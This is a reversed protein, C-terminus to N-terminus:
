SSYQKIIEEPFPHRFILEEDTFPHPLSLEVCHLAHRSLANGKAGYLDDGALPHGLSSMHVRIQHTRGTKLELEVLSYGSYEKIVQYATIANKGSGSVEREIISGPKRAIPKQIKDVKKTLHGEVIAQYKRKIIRQQQLGSLLSHSYQHKAILMLGSTDRDLRTVVHFTFPLQEKDYHGIVRNAITGEPHQASPSTAVGAPKNLILLHDDEYLIDLKTDDAVMRDGRAEPPFQITLEDGTKLEARVNVHIGNLLIGNSSKVQKLIQRSFARVSHLYDRVLMGHHNKEIKWSLTFEKM